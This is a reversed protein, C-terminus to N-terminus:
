YYLVCVVDNSLRGYVLWFLLKVLSFLWCTFDQIRLIEHIMEIRAGQAGIM